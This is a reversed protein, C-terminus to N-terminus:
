LEVTVSSNKEADEDFQFNNSMQAQNYLEILRRLVNEPVGHWVELLADTKERAINRHHMRFAYYFIEPIKTVPYDEVDGLKFGRSEAFRVADRSFDLEYVEGAQGLVGTHDTLRISKVREIDVAKGTNKESM